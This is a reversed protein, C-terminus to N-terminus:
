PRDRWNIPKGRAATTFRERDFRPNDAAFLKAFQDTLVDLVAEAEFQQGVHAITAAIDTYHRHAYRSAKPM